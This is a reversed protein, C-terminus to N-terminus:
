SNNQRKWENYYYYTYYAFMVAFLTDVICWVLNGGIADKIILGVGAGLFIGNQVCSITLGRKTRSDGFFLRVGLAIALVLSILTNNM